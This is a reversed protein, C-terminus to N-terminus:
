NKIVKSYEQELKEKFEPLRNEDCHRSYIRVFDIVSNRYYISTHSADFLHFNCNDKVKQIINSFTDFDIFGPMRIFFRNSKLRNKYIGEHIEEFEIYYKYQISSVFPNVKRDKLFSIGHTKLDNILEPMKDIDSTRIRICQFDKNLFTMQGPFVHVSLESRANLEASYRLIVDQFCNVPNKAVLYFHHDLVRKKNEPFNGKSYYGPTPDTELILYKLEKSYPSRAVNLKTSISVLGELATNEM